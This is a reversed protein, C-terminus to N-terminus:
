NKRGLRPVWGPVAKAYDEYAKGYKNKMFPEDVTMMFTLFAAGVILGEYILGRSGFLLAQGFLALLVGSYMPNRTVGYVGDTILFRIPLHPVCGYKIFQVVSLEHQFVGVPIMLAGLWRLPELGLFAPQFQWRSIVYPIVGVVLGPAFIEFLLCELTSDKKVTPTPTSM